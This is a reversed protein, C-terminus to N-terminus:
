ADKDSNESGHDGFLSPEEDFLESLFGERHNVFGKVIQYPATEEYRIELLQAEDFSVIQADPYDLLLPSHTSIIFQADKHRKITDHM